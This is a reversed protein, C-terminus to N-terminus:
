FRLDLCHFDILVAEPDQRLNSSELAVFPTGVFVPAEGVAGAELDHFGFADVGGQSVIM